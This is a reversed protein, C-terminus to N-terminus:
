EGVKFVRQAIGCIIEHKEDEPVGALDRTIAGASDPFTTESHPYDSSWMINGAGPQHRNEVAPRDHIFSGYVNQAMYFSPPEKLDSQTWYRQKEWTRDMYTAAFGFWGAGSEMSCFRLKPHRMFVGGYIMIAIPEAMSLKGILMDPLLARKDEFRSVRAGLHITLTMDLDEAASWFPEMEEHYFQLKGAPDGTLAAIQAGFVGPSACNMPCEKDQPFAPINVANFGREKCERMMEISEDIDRLPIYGVGILRRRDYSCFDALWRNYAGFSEIYLETNLTGLPGGGFQVAADIGDLDMDALRAQPKWGGSPIDSVKGQLKFDQGKRAHQAHMINLKKRRGEFVLFDADEGEEIRPSLEKFREPLYDKWFDPAPTVHQDSDVIKYKIESSRGASDRTLTETSM